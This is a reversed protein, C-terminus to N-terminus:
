DRTAFAFPPAHSPILSVAHAIWEQDYLSEGQDDVLRSTVAGGPCWINYLRVREHKIWGNNRRDQVSLQAVWRNDDAWEIQQEVSWSASSQSAICRLYLWFM